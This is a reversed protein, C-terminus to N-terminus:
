ARMRILRIMQWCFILWGFTSVIGLNLHPFGLPELYAYILTWIATFVAAQAVAELIRQRLFEDCRRYNQVTKWIMLLGPVIPAVVLLTRPAGAPLSLLAWMAASYAILYILFLLGFQRMWGALMLKREIPDVVPAERHLPHKVYGNISRM